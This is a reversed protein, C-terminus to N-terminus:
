KLRYEKLLTNIEKNMKILSEGMKEGNHLIIGERYRRIIELIELAYPSRIFEIGYELSKEPINKHIVDKYVPEKLYYNKAAEKSSPFARGSYALDKLVEKSTLHKILELCAQKNKADKHLAYGVVYLDTVRKKGKPILAMDWKFSVGKRALQMCTWPGSIMMGIRGTFFAESWGFSTQTIPSPTTKEKIAYLILSLAKRSAIDEENGFIFDGKENFIESGYSIACVEWPISLLGYQSIKGNKDEKTLKKAIEITKEWTWSEDPYAIGEKDFLDRNYYLLKANCERPIGYYHGKYKFAELAVPYIDEKWAKNNPDNIFSDLPALIGKEAFASLLGLDCDSVMMVDPPTGGACMTLVKETYKPSALICNVKINPNKIEFDKLWNDMQKKEVAAGWMIFTIEKKVTEKRSCSSLLLLIALFLVTLTIHPRKKFIQM